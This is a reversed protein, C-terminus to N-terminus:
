SVSKTSSDEEKSTLVSALRLQASTSTSHMIDNDNRRSDLFDVTRESKGICALSVKRAHKGCDLSRKYTCHARSVSTWHAILGSLDRWMSCYCCTQLLSYKRMDCRAARDSIGSHPTSFLFILPLLGQLAMSGLYIVISLNDSLTFTITRRESMIHTAEASTYYVALRPPSPHARPFDDLM